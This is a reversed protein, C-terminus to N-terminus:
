KLIENLLRTVENHMKLDFVIIKIKLANKLVNKTVSVIRNQKMENTM